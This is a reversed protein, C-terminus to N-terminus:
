AVAQVAGGVKAGIGELIGGAKKLVGVTELQTRLSQNAERVTDLVVVDAGMVRDSLGTKEDYRQFRKILSKNVKYGAALTRGIAEYIDEEATTGTRGAPAAAAPAAGDVAPAAEGGPPAPLAALDLAQMLAEEDVDEGSLRTVLVKSDSVRHDICTETLLAAALAGGEKEFQVFAVHEEMDVQVLVVKGCFGLFNSLVKCDAFDPLRTVRVARRAEEENFVLQPM